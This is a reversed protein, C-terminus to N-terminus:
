MRCAALGGSGPSPLAVGDPRATTVDTAVLGLTDATGGLVDDFSSLHHVFGAYLSSIFDSRFATAPDPRLDHVRADTFRPAVGGSSFLAVPGAFVPAAAFSVVPAGASEGPGHAFVDIQPGICEVVLTLDEDVLITLTVPVPQPDPNGGLSPLTLTVQEPNTADRLLTVRVLQTPSARRVEFGIEGAQWRVQVSARLDNWQSPHDARSTAQVATLPGHYVLSSELQNQETAFWTTVSEGATDTTTESNVM